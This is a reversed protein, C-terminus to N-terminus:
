EKEKGESKARVRLKLGEVRTITVEEGVEITSGEAIATWLEGQALVTGTPKLATRVIAEKGVMEEVGASLKRRQGKVIAYIVFAILAIALIIIAIIPGTLEIDPM